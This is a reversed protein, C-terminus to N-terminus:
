RNTWPQHFFTNPVSSPDNWAMVMFASGIAVGFVLTVVTLLKGWRDIVELKKALSVQEPIQREEGPGLHILDEENASLLKRYLALGLTAVGLVLWVMVFPTM